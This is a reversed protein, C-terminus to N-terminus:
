DGVHLWVINAMWVLGLIGHVFLQMILYLAFADRM